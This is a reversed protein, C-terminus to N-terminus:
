QAGGPAAPPVKWYPSVPNRARGSRRPASESALPPPEPSRPQGMSPHPNFSATGTVTRVADVM